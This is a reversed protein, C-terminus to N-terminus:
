FKESAGGGGSSGGGFDFQDSQEAGTAHFTQAIALSELQALGAMQPDNPLTHTFGYRSPTLLKTIFYAASIMLIGAATMMVDLSALQHYYHVTFVIAAILALGSRLLIVNKKQIGRFIYVLPILVTLIWFAWAGPVSQGEPLEFM